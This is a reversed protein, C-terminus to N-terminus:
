FIETYSYRMLPLLNLVGKIMLHPLQPRLNQIEECDDKEYYLNLIKLRPMSKLELFGNFSLPPKALRFSKGRVSNGSYRTNIDNNPGLTLEELTLYLNQKINALTVDTIDIGDLSLAKIKNCRSLIIKVHHDRVFNGSLNFKEVNPAINKALFEIDDQNVGYRGYSWLRNQNIYALDIEKLQQCCKIIEQFYNDHSIHLLDSNKMNLIQLTKSNNCISVAMKLTLFVNEIALHQLYCCNFLLEELVLTNCVAGKIRSLNLVRLQSKTTLSLSGLITSHSLNLIQCGKGLIMELLDTKVIKKELNATVWLKCDHSIRRIRKSLQGYSILHKTESYTLVKLILEDPLDQFSSM